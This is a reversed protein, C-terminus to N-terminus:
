NTQDTNKTVRTNIRYNVAKPSPATVTFSFRSGSLVSVPMWKSMVSEIVMGNGDLWEAKYDFQKTFASENFGSVQVQLFGEPTRVEKVDDVKIGQGIIWSVIGGIPKTIINEGATDSRVGSRLNVNPDYPKYCGGLLVALGLTIMAIRM